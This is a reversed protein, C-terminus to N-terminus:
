KKPFLGLKNPPDFRTTQNYLPLFYTADNDYLGFPTNGSVASGSGPWIAEM